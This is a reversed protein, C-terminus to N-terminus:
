YWKIIVLCDSKSSSSISLVVFILIFLICYDDLVMWMVLIQWWGTIRLIQTLNLNEYKSVDWSFPGAILWDIFIFNVEDFSCSCNFYFLLANKWFVYGVFSACNTIIFRFIDKECIIDLTLM